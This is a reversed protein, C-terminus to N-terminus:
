TARRRRRWCLVAVLLVAAGRPDTTRCGCGTAAPTGKAYIHSTVVIPQNIDNILQVRYRALAATPDRDFTTTFDAGTVPRQEDKVGDKWLQIYTGDGGTIHVTFALHTADDVEDGIEHTDLKFDVTPADPGQLDVMTRGHQVADIIAAESLNDALVLTTPSGIPSGTSSENMGATHDDSGGIAAIKNGADLEMDWLAIARPYFANIGIDFNGTLVELGTVEDWPTDDVHKWECGICATGLDLVPHNVIFIGGQAKVDDIIDKVTRGNYGLRHDVYKSIGVANGHGSYTTIEAGRLFLFDPHDPQIAALLAHQAVTNHDSINAFDLGRSTALDVIQDFTASADGSQISHVHFDGKYWRREPSLVVPNYDAKPLSAITAADRCTVDISYHGGGVDLKAKGIAITWTGAPIAGPLYCRSSQDVGIIADDTLGGGWGRFGDPGWAGWDLITYDSGDTHAIEIEVTGAPVTIAVDQYDGGDAPVDGEYHMTSLVAAVAIWSM